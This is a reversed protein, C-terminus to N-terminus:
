SKSTSQFVRNDPEAEAFLTMSSKLKMDDPYGFVYDPDDHPLELLCTSIEILRSRLLDDALYAKAEDIGSIGYYESVPSQGLGKMQPFIYWMWHSEKQGNKIESLADAYSHHQADIFRQLNYADNNQM